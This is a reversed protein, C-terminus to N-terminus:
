LAKKITVAGRIQGARYGVARDAPYDKSLQEKVGTALSQPDGHCGMCLPQAPLALMYRFFKGAPETVVEAYELTEPKSGAAAQTDFNALVQQEWADPWGLLPNRPKLSVRSLKVGFRSSLEAAIEPALRKCVQVAAEPGRETMEKKLAGGLREVLAGAQGRAEAKLEDIGQANASVCVLGVMCALSGAYNSLV